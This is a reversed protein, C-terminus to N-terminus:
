EFRGAPNRLDFWPPLHGSLYGSSSRTAISSKTMVNCVEHYGRFNYEEILDSISTFKQEYDLHGFDFISDGTHESLLGNIKDFEWFLGEGNKKRAEFIQEFDMGLYDAAKRENDLLFDTGNLFKRCRFGDSRIQDMGFLFSVIVGFYFAKSVAMGFLVKMKQRFFKPRSVIQNEEFITIVSEYGITNTESNGTQRLTGLKRAHFCYQMVNESRRVIWFLLPMFIFTLLGFVLAIVTKGYVIYCFERYPSWKDSKLLFFLVQLTRSFKQICDENM